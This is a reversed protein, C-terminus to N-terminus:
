ECGEGVVEVWVARGGGGSVGSEWWRWECREGVVEM